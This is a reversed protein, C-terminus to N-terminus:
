TTKTRYRENEEDDNQEDSESEENEKDHEESDSEEKSAEEQQKKAKKLIICKSCNLVNKRPPVFEKSCTKCKMLM